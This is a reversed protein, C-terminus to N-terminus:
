ISTKRSNIQKVHNDLQDISLYTTEKYIQKMLQTLTWKFVHFIVIDIIRNAEYTFAGNVVNCKYHILNQSNAKRKHECWEEASNSRSRFAWIKKEFFLTEKIVAAL